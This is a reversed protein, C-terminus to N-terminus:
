GKLGKLGQSSGEVGKVRVRNINMYEVIPSVRTAGQCPANYAWWRACREQCLSCTCM